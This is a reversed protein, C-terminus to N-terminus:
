TSSEGASAVAAGVAASYAGESFRFYECRLVPPESMAKIMAGEALRMAQAPSDQDKLDLTWMVTAIDFWRRYRQVREDLHETRGLKLMDGHEASCVRVLYVCAQRRALRQARKQSYFRQMDESRSAVSRMKACTVCKNGNIYRM